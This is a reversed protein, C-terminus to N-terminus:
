RKTCTLGLNSYFSLTQEKTLFFNITYPDREYWSDKNMLNGQHVKGDVAVQTSHELSGLIHGMEHVLISVYLNIMEEEKNEKSVKYIAERPIPYIYVISRLSDTFGDIKVFLSDDNWLDEEFTIEKAKQFLESFQKKYQDLFNNNDIILRPFNDNILRKFHMPLKMEFLLAAAIGSKPDWQSLLAIFDEPQKKYEEKVKDKTTYFIKFRKKSKSLSECQYVKAIKDFFHKTNELFIQIRRNRIAKGENADIGWRSSFVDMPIDDIYLEKILLKKKLKDIDNEAAYIISHLSCLFISITLITRIYGM